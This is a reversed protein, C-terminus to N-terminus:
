SDPDVQSAFSAIAAAAAAAFRGEVLKRLCGPVVADAVYAVVSGRHCLDAAAAAAAFVVSSRYQHRLLPLSCEIEM